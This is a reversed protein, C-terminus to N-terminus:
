TWPNAINVLAKKVALEILWYNSKMFLQGGRLTVPKRSESSRTM